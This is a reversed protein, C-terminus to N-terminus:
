YSYADGNLLLGLARQDDDELLELPTRPGVHVNPTLWWLAAHWPDERSGLRQNIELVEPRPVGGGDLQFSPVFRDGHDEIIILDDTPSAVEGAFSYGARLLTGREESRRVLAARYSELAQRIVTSQDAGDNAALQEVLLRSYFTTVEDIQARDLGARMREDVEATSQYIDERKEEGGM